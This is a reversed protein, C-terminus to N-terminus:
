KISEIRSLIFQHLQKTFRPLSFQKALNRFYERTGQSNKCIAASIKEAGEEVTNYQYRSSVIESCGGCSPVIPTLGAAMAEIIAVGFHEGEMTHFYTNCSSMAEVLQQNTANPILKVKHRLGQDNIRKNISSFYPWNAPTLSGVIQFNIDDDLIRALNLIKDIQKEPSFRSVILVRRGRSNSNYAATFREIDVPPYLVHAEIEPYAEILAKRTFISNAIVVQSRTLARKTLASAITQYPKFYARWLHSRSYKHNQSSLLSIPFHIYLMCIATSPIKYPLSDGNTNIIVHADDFYSPKPASMLLRQYIGFYNVKFPLLCRINKLPPIRGHIRAIVEFDPKQFTVLDVDYGIEHLSEITHIALSAEGGPKNINHHLVVAKM